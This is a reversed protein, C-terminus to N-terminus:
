NFLDTGILSKIYAFRHPIKSKENRMNMYRYKHRLYDYCKIDDYVIENPLKECMLDHLVIIEKISFENNCADTLFNMKEDYISVEIEKEIEKHQEIFESLCLQDIYNENKLITFRLFLIKGGKGKKGYPEYTFKIDTTESLAQQCADLVRRRFDAYVNYEDKEIGILEKLENIALIRSGIKEYQKLIEYMRLQNSSKLRLANWLQYSFYKQKFEFMLPLAKDHADIEIYWEGDDIGVTCEKFLQFGIYGGRELPINVIKCLLSNTVQKLYDINIRGLEMIARFDSVPFRVLRTNTQNPNIKSLYISFFRLEQLTMSNSRIENLVNNKKVVYNGKITVM